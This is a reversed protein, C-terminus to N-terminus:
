RSFREVPKSHRRAWRLLLAAHDRTIKTITGIPAWGANDRAVNEYDPTFAYGRPGWVNVDVAEDANAHIRYLM